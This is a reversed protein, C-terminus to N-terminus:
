IIRSFSDRFLAMIERIGVPGAIAWVCQRSPMATAAAHPHRQKTRFSQCHTSTEPPSHRCNFARCARQLPPREHQVRHRPQFLPHFIFLILPSVEFFFFFARVTVRTLLLKLFLLAHIWRPESNLGREWCSRSVDPYLDPRSCLHCLTSRAAKIASPVCADTCGHAHIYTRPRLASLWLTTVVEAM